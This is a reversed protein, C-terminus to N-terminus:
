SQVESLPIVEADPKYYVILELLDLKQEYTLHDITISVAMFYSQIPPNWSFRYYGQNNQPTMTQITYVFGHTGDPLLYDLGIKIEGPLKNCCLVQGTIRGVQLTQFEGPSFYATWYHLPILSGGSSYQWTAYNTGCLFYIGGATAKMYSGQTNYYLIDPSRNSTIQTPEVNVSSEPSFRESEGRLIIVEYTSTMLYLADDRVVYVGSTVSPYQNFEALKELNQGGDFTYIANDFSSLFYAREPSACLYKMGIAYVLKFPAGQVVGTTGQTLVIEFIYENNCAYFVGHIMFVDAFRWPLLNSGGGNPFLYYGFYGQTQIAVANLM